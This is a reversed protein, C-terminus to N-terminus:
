YSLISMGMNNSLRNYFAHPTMLSPRDSNMSLRDLFLQPLGIIYKSNM